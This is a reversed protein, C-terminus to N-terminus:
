DENKKKPEPRFVIEDLNGSDDFYFTIREGEFFSAASPKYIWREKKGRSAPLVVEPEGYRQEINEKSEGKQIVGSEYARKLAEYIKTEKKFDKQIEGQNRALAILNDLGDDEYEEAFSSLPATAAILAAIIIFKRM